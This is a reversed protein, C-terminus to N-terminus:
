GLLKARVGRMSDLACELQAQQRRDGPDFVNLARREEGVVERWGRGWLAAAFEDTRRDATPLLAEHEPDMGWFPMEPISRAVARLGNILPERRRSDFASTEAAMQRMAELGVPGFSSNHRAEFIEGLKAGLEGTFDSIIDHRAGRSYPRVLLEVDDREALELFRGYHYSPGLDHAKLFEDFSAGNLALTGTLESYFANAGGFPSRLYLLIRVRAAGASRFGDILRHGDGEVVVRKATESSVLVARRRAGALEFRLLRTTRCSSSGRVLADILRHHAGNNGQGTRLVHLGQRRLRKRARM